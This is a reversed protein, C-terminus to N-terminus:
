RVMEIRMEKTVRNGTKQLRFPETGLPNLVKQPMFRVLGRHVHVARERDIFHLLDRRTQQSLCLPLPCVQQM